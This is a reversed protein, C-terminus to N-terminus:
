VEKIWVVDVVGNQQCVHECRTEGVRERRSGSYREKQAEDIDFVIYYFREPFRNAKQDMRRVRCVKM